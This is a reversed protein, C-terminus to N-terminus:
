PETQAYSNTEVRTALLVGRAEFASLVLDRKRFLNGHIIWEPDEELSIYRERLDSSVGARELFSFQKGTKSSIEMEWQSVYDRCKPAEIDSCANALHVRQAANLRTDHIGIWTDADAVRERGAAFLMVCASACVKGSRLSTNVDMARLREAILLAWDFSGGFSNLEVTEIAGDPLRSLFDYIHSEIRGDIRLTRGHIEPLRIGRLDDQEASARVWAIAVLIASILFWINKIALSIDAKDTRNAM